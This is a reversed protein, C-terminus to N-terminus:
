LQYIIDKLDYKSIKSSHSVQLLGDKEVGLIIGKIREGEIIFNGQINRLFLRSNYLHLLMEIDGRELISKYYSLQKAIKKVLDIITVNIEPNELALSTAKSAIESAFDKQYVNLGIGIISSRIEKGAIKNEILIGAIKKNGIMIDNPWKIFTQHPHLNQISDYVALSSIITLFFQQTTLLSEPVLILSATVNVGTKTQWINGRQGRGMSQEKAMIATLNTQPKFNSLLQKSYDNTSTIKELVIIPLPQYHGFFTNNQM